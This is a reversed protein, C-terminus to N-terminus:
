IDLEANPDSLTKQLKATDMIDKFPSSAALKNIGDLIMAVQENNGSEIAKDLRNFYNIFNDKREDFSKNLYSIFVEKTAEIQKITVTRQAEIKARETKQIEAEKKADFYLKALDSVNKIYVLPNVNNKTNVVEKKSNLNILNNM